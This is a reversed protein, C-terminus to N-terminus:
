RSSIMLPPPFLNKILRKESSNLSELSRSISWGVLERNYLDIAVALYLFGSGLRISTIDGALVEFLKQPLAEEAKFIREAIPGVQNSDTTM